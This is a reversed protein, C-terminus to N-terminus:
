LIDKSPKATRKSSNGAGSAAFPVSTPATSSVSSSANTNTNAITTNKLSATSTYASSDPKIVGLRSALERPPKAPTGTGSSAVSAKPQASAAVSGSSTGGEGSGTSPQSIKVLLEGGTVPHYVPVWGKGNALKVFALVENEGPINGGGGGGQEGGEEAEVEEPIIPSVAAVTTTWVACARIISGPRLQVGTFHDEDCNPSNFVDLDELFDASYVYELTDDEVLKGAVETM